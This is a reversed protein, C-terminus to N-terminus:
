RAILVPGYTGAGSVQVWARVLDITRGTKAVAAVADQLDRGCEAHVDDCTSHEGAGRRCWVTNSPMLAGQFRDDWRRGVLEARLLKRADPETTPGLEYSMSAIFTAV